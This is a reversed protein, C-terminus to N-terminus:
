EGTFRRQGAPFEVIVYDGPGLEDLTRDTM